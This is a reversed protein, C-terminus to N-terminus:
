VMMMKLTQIDPVVGKEQTLYEVIDMADCKLAVKLMKSDLVVRDELKRKKATGKNLSAKDEREVLMKVLALDKQTIAVIVALNKKSAPSAGLDLLFRVLPIYRAHV